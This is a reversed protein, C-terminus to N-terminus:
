PWWGEGNAKYANKLFHDGKWKLSHKFNSLKKSIDQSVQSSAEQTEEERAKAREPQKTPSYCAPTTPMEYATTTLAGEM